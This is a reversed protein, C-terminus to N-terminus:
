KAMARLRSFMQESAKQPAGNAVEKKDGLTDPTSAEYQKLKEMLEHKEAREQKLLHKLVPYASIRNRAAAVKKIITARDEPKLRPDMPSVALAEDAFKYGKELISNREEDGEIMQFFEAEEPMTKVAEVAKDWNESVFKTLEKHASIGQERMQQERDAAVKRADNLAQGRKDWLQRVDKRHAMAEDAFDGFKEIALEKAKGLPANVLDLLDQPQAPRANGSQDQVTLEGLEAMATKFSHEYPQDYKTLFEESKSYNVYRIEDELEKARTEAKTLREVETKRGVEDPILKKTEMLQSELTAAKGKWEDVLKWPNVKVKAKPDTAATKSAETATETAEETGDTEVETEEAPKGKNEVPTPADVEKAPEPAVEEKVGAKDRLRGFFEKKSKSEFPQRIDPKAEVPPPVTPAAKGHGVQPANHAEATIPAPSTAPATTTTPRPAPVSGKVHIPAGMPKIEVTTEPM